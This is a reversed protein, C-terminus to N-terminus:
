FVEAKRINELTYFSFMPRFHILVLYGGYLYWLLCGLGKAIFMEILAIM